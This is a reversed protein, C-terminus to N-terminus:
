ATTKSQDIIRDLDLRDFRLKKDLEVTPIRGMHVKAKLADTTLGLYTAAQSSTLLRPTLVVSNRLCNVVAEAITDTNIEIAM